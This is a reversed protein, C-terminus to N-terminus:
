HLKEYCTKYYSYNNHCFVGLPNLVYAQFGRPYRDNLYIYYVRVCTNKEETEPFVVM